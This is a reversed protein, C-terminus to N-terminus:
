QAAKELVALNRQQLPIGHIVILDNLNQHTATAGVPVRAAQPCRGGRGGMSVSLNPPLPLLPLISRLTLPLLHPYPSTLFFPRFHFHHIFLSVSICLLSMTLPM